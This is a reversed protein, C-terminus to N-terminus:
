EIAVLDFTFRVDTTAPTPGNLRKFTIELSMGPEFIIDEINSLSPFLDLTSGTNIPINNRYYIEKSYDPNLNSFIRIELELLFNLDMVGNMELFQGNGATVASIRSTDIGNQELLGVFSNQINTILVRHELAPNLGAPVEFQVQFPVLILEQGEDGNCSCQLGSILLLFCIIFQSPYSGV